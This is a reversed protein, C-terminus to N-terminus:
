PAPRRIPERRPRRGHSGFVFAAPCFANEGHTLIARARDIEGLKRELSMFHLCMQKAPDDPLIKIAREHIERTRAVGYYKEAKRIYLLYMDLRHKEDVARTARDFIAMAHRMLGHEEELRAYMIFFQAADKAPVKEVSQEFMDRARELKTGGYRESFKQLYALWIDKVHPFRFLSVGKEYVRFSDEFFDHEELYSAYNLVMQATALKLEMVRDYAAKTAQATGLSEELDLYLAWAKVSRYLREQVPGDSGPQKEQGSKAGAAAQQRRRQLSIPPEAVARRMVDLAEFFNEHRLEMEAWECWVAALEDVSKYAVQCAKEFIVRANVVDGFKEYFRAFAVWLTHLSGTAQQVDVTKVAETFCTIVKAAREDGESEFLAVRKHWESVNHPNQRLLVSSLLIPRREMLHELRALRLEVDNGEEYLDDDDDDDEDDDDVMQMKASLVSEELQAYADFVTSFDHVTVVSRVAEEYVDRVREFQGLRTYYEALKCWLRGVEDTFRALGSRIIADVQVVGLDFGKSACIVSSERAM